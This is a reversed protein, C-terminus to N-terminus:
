SAREAWCAISRGGTAQFQCCRHSTHERWNTRSGGGGISSASGLTPRPSSSAAATLKSTASFEQQVGVGADNCGNQLASPNTDVRIMVASFDHCIARDINKSGQRGAGESQILPLKHNFPQNSRAINGQGIDALSPAIIRRNVPPNDNGFVWIAPGCIKDVRWEVHVGPYKQM